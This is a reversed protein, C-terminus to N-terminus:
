LSPEPEVFESFTQSVASEQRIKVMCAIIGCTQERKDLHLLLSSVVLGSSPSSLLSPSTQSLLFRHGSVREGPETRKEENGGKTEICSKERDKTM